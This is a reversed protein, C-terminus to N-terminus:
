SQQVLRGFGQTLSRRNIYHAKPQVQVQKLIKLHNTKLKVYNYPNYIYNPNLLTTQYHM